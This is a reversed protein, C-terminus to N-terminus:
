DHEQGALFTKMLGASDMTEPLEQLLLMQVDFWNKELVSQLLDGEILRRFIDGSHQHDYCENIVGERVLSMLDVVAEYEPGIEQELQLRIKKALAPSGGGTSVTVIMSGRRFHAPVHFDSVLPADASNLLVEHKKAEHAILEQVDRNNTAAFVLLVGELDGEVFHRDFWELKGDDILLQLEPLVEPSIVRVAAGAEILGRCKRLAVNGGGVVLCLSNQINLNVPYLSM